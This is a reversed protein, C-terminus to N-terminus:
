RKTDSEDAGSIHCPQMQVREMAYARRMGHNAQVVSVRLLRRGEGREGSCPRLGKPGEVLQKGLPTGLDDVYACGSARVELRGPLCEQGSRVDVDFFWKDFGSSLRSGQELSRVSTVSQNAGTVLEHTIWTERRQRGPHTGQPGDGQYIAVEREARRGQLEM